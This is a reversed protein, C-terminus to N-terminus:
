MRTPCKLGILTLGNELVTKALHAVAGRTNKITEDEVNIINNHYFKNFASAIDVLHRTVIYPENKNGAEIIKDKFSYALKLVEKAEELQNFDVKSFDVGGIKNIVSNARAYTYQVYPGTEGEFSLVNEWSFVVDKIRSNYLGNFVVAGIGVDEAVKEKNELNPNNENIIDLTKSVAENLLEEMLIVVGRRSSMKGTELSVLGFGVHELNNAWEYGMLEVVKFWQAFHLRQDLATIYIAKEFNYNEKRYLASAIDRTPYLTGGDSRLILCPPMNHQELDVITAGDSKQLLNKQRLEEVVPMMKDNYFSEGKYSDFTVDLRKYIKEFEVLSIEKFWKWLELSEEDGNQMKVLYERALDNLSDDKEAEDHFKVYIKTLETIGDKEILQKNGWKKYAVILKGFQTGWDGLYNIGYSKYGMANYINYLANGIITSRLHGIHFTKAINPSSYDIVVTKGGGVNSFGFKDKQELVSEITYKGLASSSVFFNIYAGAVEIKEIFDPKELKEAIESAIINPAKRFVKALKFTPYAYDGLKQSSPIEIANLIEELDGQIEKNILIAINKKFDM